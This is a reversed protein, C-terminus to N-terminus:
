ANIKKWHPKDKQPLQGVYEEGTEMDVLKYKSPCKTYVVLSVAIDFESVEKGNQLKRM